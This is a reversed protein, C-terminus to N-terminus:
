PLKRKTRSWPEIISIRIRCRKNQEDIQPCFKEDGLNWTKQTNKPAFKLPWNKDTVSTQVWLERPQFAATCRWTEGEWDHWVSRGHLRLLRRWGPLQRRPAQTRWSPWCGGHTPCPRVLASDICCGHCRCCRCKSNCWSWRWSDGPTQGLYKIVKKGSNYLYSMILCWLVQYSKILCISM